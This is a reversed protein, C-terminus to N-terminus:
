IRSLLKKLTDETICTNGICLKGQVVADGQVQLNGNGGWKKGIIVGDKNLLYLLEGGTIHLRGKPNYPRQEGHLTTSYINTADLNTSYINKADMNGQVSLDGTGGWEKGVIVGEKNLLYLKENGSIHLRGRAHPKKENGVILNTNVASGSAVDLASNLTTGGGGVWLKHM